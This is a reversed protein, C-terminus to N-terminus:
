DILARRADYDKATGGRFFALGASGRSVSASM